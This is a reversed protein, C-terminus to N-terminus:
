AAVGAPQRIASLETLPGAREKAREYDARWRQRERLARILVTRYSPLEEEDARVASWVFRPRGDGTTVKTSYRDVDPADIGAEELVARVVAARDARHETLTKGTWQRSVLVRRGGCGLTDRRHAKGRCLGPQMQPRAGKPQIGYRLWNACTPACPLWRTQEWLRDIHAARRATAQEPDYTDTIAKTLYKCLYGIRRDADPTGALIGQLDTQEGFRVVHAPEADPDADLADLAQDWTPLLEGSTPDVYGGAQVDWVPLEEVYVPEDFSPWWVQHYTGAIVQRLLARPIAGRIAAHLHPALRRQPELAAFYQVKWGVARRLNQWFRDVLKPFHM